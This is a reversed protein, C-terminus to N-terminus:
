TSIYHMYETIHDRMMNYLVQAHMQSYSNFWLVGDIELEYSVGLDNKFAYLNIPISGGNETPITGNELLHRGKKMSDSM